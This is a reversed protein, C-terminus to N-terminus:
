LDGDLHVIVLAVDCLAHHHEEAADEEDYSGGYDHRGQEAILIHVENELCYMKVKM